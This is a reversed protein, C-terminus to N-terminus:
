NYALGFVSVRAAGAGVVTAELAQAPTIGPAPDYATAILIGPVPGAGLYDGAVVGADTAVTLRGNGQNLDSVILWMLEGAKVDKRRPVSYGAVAEGVASAPRAVYNIEDDFTYAFGADISNYFYDALARVLMVSLGGHREYVKGLLKTYEPLESDDRSEYLSFPLLTPSLSGEPDDVPLAAM